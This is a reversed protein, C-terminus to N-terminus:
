RAQPNQEAARRSEIMKMLTGGAVGAALGVGTGIMGGMIAGGLVGYRGTDFTKEVQQMRVSGDHNYVPVDRYVPDTSHKGFGVGLGPFGLGINHEYYDAPIEGLRSREMVPGMWNRTHIEKQGNEIAGAANGLLAGGVLGLAGGGLAMAGVTKALEQRKEPAIQVPKEPSDQLTKKLANIGVGVGLGILGGGVAGLFGGLLPEMWQSNRFTPAEYSGVQDHRIDPSYRHWWGELTTNCVERSNEGYGETHCDTDYDPIASHSHGVLVPHTISRREWVENVQNNSQSQFGVYTGVAAGVAAGGATSLLLRDREPEALSTGFDSDLVKKGVQSVFDQGRPSATIKM